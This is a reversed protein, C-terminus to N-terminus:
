LLNSSMSFDAVRRALSSMERLVPRVDDRRWQFSYALPALEPVAKLVHLQKRKVMKEAWGKPLIGVGIGEILMGAIAGWNNCFIRKETTIGQGLLWDDIIRTTGAGPPQSILPYDSLLPANISGSRKALAPSAMWVFHAQTIPQSRIAQRSSRGAIIAFDLEGKDVRQELVAGVDVYPELELKPHAKGAQAIFGPLWTLASLEGVGFRCKGSFGESGTFANRVAAASELLDRAKPLLQQGAETLVAKHGSRDFLPQELSEELETIRKSLSSISLHLREAAVAFNICTAAWYFAELQKLTM